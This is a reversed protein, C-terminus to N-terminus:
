EWDDERDRGFAKLADPSSSAMSGELLEPQNSGDQVATAAGQRSTKSANVRTAGVPILVVTEVTVVTKWLPSHHVWDAL